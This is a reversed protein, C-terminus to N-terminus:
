ISLYRRHLKLMRLQQRPWKRTEKLLALRTKSDIGNYVNEASEM